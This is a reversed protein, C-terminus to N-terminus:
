RGRIARYLKRLLKYPRYLIYKAPFRLWWIFSLTQWLLNSPSICRDGRWVNTVVAVLHNPFLPGEIYIQADGAIYFCDKKKRVLRHLIYLGNDRKILTIQGFRLDKFAASSLEVSDTNERLFPVMSDGTVTLRVKQNNKLLESIAPFLEASKISKVNPM